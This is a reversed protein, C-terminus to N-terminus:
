AFKEGVESGFFLNFLYERIEIVRSEEKLLYGVENCPFEQLM